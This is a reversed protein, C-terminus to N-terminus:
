LAEVCEVGGGCWAEEGGKTGELRGGEREEAVGAFPEAERGAGPVAGQTHRAGDGIQGLFRFDAARGDSLCEAVPSRPRHTRDGDPLFHRCSPAQM